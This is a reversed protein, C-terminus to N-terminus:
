ATSTYQPTMLSVLVVGAVFIAAAVAAMIKWRRRLTDRVISIVDALRAEYEDAEHRVEM